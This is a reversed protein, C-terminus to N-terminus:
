LEALGLDELLATRLEMYEASWRRAVRRPRGLRVEYDRVLTGPQSSLVVIRDSLLIAEDIDHTVFVVTIPQREWFALLDNQLRLRTQADLAAFPEDMLLLSPRSLFSRAFAVRQRMGASIQHPYASERGGLGFRELLIRAQATRETKPVDQAELAFAANEIVTMWPFLGGDQHVMAIRHQSGVPSGDLEIRGSNPQVLNALTRLLTTKGCGSPGIISLFQGPAAQFSLNRIAEIKSGNASFGVNLERCRIGLPSAGTAQRAM